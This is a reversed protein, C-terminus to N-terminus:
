ACLGNAERERQADTTAEDDTTGVKDDASISGKAFQGLPQDKRIVKWLAPAGSTFQLWNANEPYEEIPVTAFKIKQLDIDKMERSLDYIKGLSALDEDLQVSDTAADLFNFLRKPNALTGASKVRGIMSAVFAQQRKMRGIDSNLSLVHRERV